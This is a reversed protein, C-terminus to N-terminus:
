DLMGAAILDKHSLYKSRAKVGYVRGWIECYEDNTLWESVRLMATGAPNKLVAFHGTDKAPEVYPMQKMLPPAYHRFIFNGDDQKKPAFAPFAKWNSLYYGVQLYSTKAGLEPHQEKLYKTYAAKGDFRYSHTIEGKAGSRHIASRRCSWVSSLQSSPRLPMSSTRAKSSRSPSPLRTRARDERAARQFIPPQNLFQWFNTVSFITHAGDFAKKLNLDAAVLEVNDAQLHAHKEPDWTLGRIRWGPEDKFQQYVSSGQLGTIGIIVLLKSPQSSHITNRRNSFHQHITPKKQQECRDRHDHRTYM